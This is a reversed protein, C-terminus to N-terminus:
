FVSVVQKPNFLEGEVFPSDEVLAKNLADSAFDLIRALARKRVLQKDTLGETTPPRTSSSAPTEPFCGEPDGVTFPNRGAATNRVDQPSVTLVKAPDVAFDSPPTGPFFVDRLLTLRKSGDASVFGTVGRIEDLAPAIRERLDADTRLRQAVRDSLGALQKAPLRDGPTVSVAGTIQDLVQRQEATLDLTAAWAGTGTGALVSSTLVTVQGLGIIFQRRTSRGYTDEQSM